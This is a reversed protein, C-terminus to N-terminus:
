FVCKKGRGRRAALFVAGVPLLINVEQREPNQQLPIRANIAKHGLELQRRQREPHKGFIPNMIPM